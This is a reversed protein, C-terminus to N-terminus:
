DEFKKLDDYLDQNLEKLKNGLELLGHENWYGDGEETRFYYFGDIDPIFYGILKGGHTTTIKYNNNSLEYNLM